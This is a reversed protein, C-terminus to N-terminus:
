VTLWSRRYTRRYAMLDVARAALLRLRDIQSLPEAIKGAVEPLIQILM